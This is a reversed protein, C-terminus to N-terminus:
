CTTMELAGLQRLLEVLHSLAAESDQTQLLLRREELAAQLHEMAKRPLESTGDTTAAEGSRSAKGTM